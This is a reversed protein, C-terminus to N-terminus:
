MAEDREPHSGEVVVDLLAPGERRLAERLADGIQAAAEVREAWVGMSRALEPFAIPPRDLDVGIYRKARASAGGGYLHVRHKILRYQANNCIIFVVRARLHAATWLSQVSFMAAGDGVICLVPREPLALHVGISAPLGWGLGGGKLGFYKLPHRSLLHRLALGTTASEDVIVADNPAHEVIRQMAVAGAIPRQNSVKSIEADLEALQAGKRQALIGIRESAIREQDANAMSRLQELLTELTAKPDGWLAVSAKYNKGLQWADINLQILRVNEPLPETHAAAAMTFIEAGVAFVVDAGELMSRVDRQRRALTGQYLPSDISFNFTISATESYVPSGLFSAVAHVATEAESKGVEDGAIIVPHQAQLLAGCADRIADLNARPAHMITAATIEGALETQAVMVDKPLSLFVPGGPPTTAIKVARQLARELESASRVEYAWKVLPRALQVLDGGLFPETLSFSQDQQGATVLLPSSHKAADFLMGLANGLGPMIHGCFVGLKGSALAYGDAMAMASGEHLALIYDMGSTEILRDLVTLETHGPNGFLYRVGQAQLFRLFYETGNM